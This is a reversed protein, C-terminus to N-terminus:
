VGVYDAVPTHTGAFIALIETDFAAFNAAGTDAFILVREDQHTFAGSIANNRAFRRYVLEYTKYTATVSANGPSFADVLAFTGAPEVFATVVVEVTGAPSAITIFDGENLERLTLTVIGAGGDTADVKRNTDQNVRDIFLDRIEDATPVTSGSSVTYSREQSELPEPDSPHDVKVTITFQTDATLTIAALDYDKESLVGASFATTNFERGDTLKIEEGLDTVTFLGGPGFIIDAAAAQIVNLIAVSVPTREPVHM